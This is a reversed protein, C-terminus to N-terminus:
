FMHRQLILVVSHSYVTFYFFDKIKKKCMCNEYMTPLNIKDHFGKHPTGGWGEKSRKIPLFALLITLIPIPTCGM